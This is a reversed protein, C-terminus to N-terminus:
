PRAFLQAFEAAWDIRAAEEGEAVAAYTEALWNRLGARDVDVAAFAEVPGLRMRVVGEKGGTRVPCLRIDGEGSLVRTGSRLLERSFTWEIEVGLPLRFTTRVAWPDDPDYRFVTEVPRGFRGRLQRATTRWSRVPSSGPPTAKHLPSESM